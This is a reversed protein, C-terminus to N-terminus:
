ALSYVLHIDEPELAFLEPDIEVALACGLHLYFGITNESPTASIYLQKAGMEKARQAVCEFLAKGLGTRRYPKGVHLFKLQLQDVRSGIFRSELIAVGALADGDFAGYFCGGRDHCDLLLPTYLAAEGPPWGQMDFFAAELILRGEQLHVVREIVERRDIEWVREVEARTLERIIVAAKVRTLRLVCGCM